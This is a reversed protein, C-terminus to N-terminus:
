GVPLLRGGRRAWWALVAHTPLYILLPYGLMAVGLFLAPPMWVQEIGFPRWLWNINTEPTALWFTAPLLLWTLATQLKWGRRDYGLRAIGWILLVPVVIHFLSLARLWLPKAADFMYETGGVPHSGTALATLFDVIWLIQILLVAVAQSSFLLPSELWIAAAVVFNAADCLWLFNGPGYQVWYAPVWVVMWAAYALKLWGPM